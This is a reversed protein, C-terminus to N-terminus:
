EGEAPPNLFARIEQFLLDASCECGSVCQVLPKARRLLGEAVELRKEKRTLLIQLDRARGWINPATLVYEIWNLKEEPRMRFTASYQWLCEAAERREEETVNPIM